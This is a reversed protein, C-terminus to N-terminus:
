LPALVKTRPIRPCTPDDRFLWALHKTSKVIAAFGHRIRIFSFPLRLNRGNMVEVFGGCVM